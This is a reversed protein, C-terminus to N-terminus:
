IDDININTDHRKGSDSYKNNNRENRRKLTQEKNSIKKAIDAETYKNSKIVKISKVDLIKSNPMIVVENNDIINDVNNDNDDIIDNINKDDNIDEINEMVDSNDKNEKDDSKPIKKVLECADNEYKVIVIDQLNCWVRKRMKGPIIADTEIGNSLVVSLRNGGQRKKVTAIFHKGDTLDVNIEPINGTKKKSSKKYNKGGITNVM